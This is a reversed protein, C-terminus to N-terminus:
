RTQGGPLVVQPLLTEGEHQSLLLSSLGLKRAPCVPLKLVGSSPGAHQLFQVGSVDVVGVEPSPVASRVEERGSLEDKEPGVKRWVQRGRGREKGM